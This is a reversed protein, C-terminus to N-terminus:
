SGSPAHTQPMGTGAPAPVEKRRLKGIYDAKEELSSFPILQATSACPRCSDVILLAGEIEGLRGAAMYEAAVSVSVVRNTVIAPAGCYACKYSKPLRRYLHATAEANKRRIAEKVRSRAKAAESKSM